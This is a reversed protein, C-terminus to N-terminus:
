PQLGRGLHVYMYLYLSFIPNYVSIPTKVKKKTPLFKLVIIITRMRTYINIRGNYVGNQEAVMQRRQSLMM